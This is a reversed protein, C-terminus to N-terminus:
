GHGQPLALACQFNVNFFLNHNQYKYYVVIIFNHISLRCHYSRIQFLKKVPDVSLAMLKATVKRYM